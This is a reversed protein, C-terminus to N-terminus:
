YRLKTLELEQRTADFDIKLRGRDDMTVHEDTMPLIKETHKVEQTSIGAPDKPIWLNPPKAFFAPPYYVDREVEDPYKPEPLDTPVMRRLVTFDSFIEPHLWRIIFNVKEDPAPSMWHRWYVMFFDIAKALQPFKKDIRKQIMVTAGEKLTDAMGSAGEVAVGRTAGPEHVVEDPDREDEREQAFRRQQEAINAARTTEFEGGILHQDEETTLSKPLSWLLPGLAEILSHHIVGTVVVLAAIMAVPGFAERLTFLGFLCVEAFYLGLLLQLLARPYVLGKTDIESDYVYILNYRWVAHLFAVGLLAFGLIVPAILSYTITIVGLNTYVPFVGGWHVRELQHWKNYQKRVNKTLRPFVHFKFLNFVQVLNASAFFLSQILFYNLYFNSAKPLNQSLLDKAMTPDALLEGVAASAASTLTTILFVQVVQFAFYAHQVFLEIRSLTPIGALKALFRLIGPVISMLFSLALAPLVGSLVGIIVQPLKGIWNLFPVTEALYKINSISGVLASPIAWFIILVCIFTQISFRRIIRQWWSMSLSSWLIESPKVGIYRQSMHLPRHHTLTQYANQADTLTEFEVFVCSMYNDTKFLQAQRLNRIKSNLLKIRLRTWKITDVRKFGNAIPRHHPRSSHSMWQSAVSGNVDPLHNPTESDSSSSTSSTPSSRGDEAENMTKGDMSIVPSDPLFKRGKEGCKSETTTLAYGKEGKEGKETDAGSEAAEATESTEGKQKKMMRKRAFNAMRILAFEAKELRMATQEREKVLKELEDCSQPMWIRKVSKGLLWRLRSEDLYQRPVGTYLVTRSSLRNAYFDSLLYAQRLNIYYVCERSVMYLIFGFYVWALVVHAYLRKPSVVNGITLSDLAKNGAGGTVHIPILTPWLLLMGVICIVGLVRLFRLFLYGDLSSHNLVFTDPVKYFSIYWKFWGSPLAPSREHPKLSSVFTRPSYVRPCFRRLVLFILLCAGTWIAVPALTALLTSVSASNSGSAVRSLGPATENDRASGVRPDEM